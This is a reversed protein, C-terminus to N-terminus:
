GFLVAMRQQVIENTEEELMQEIRQKVVQNVKYDGFQSKVWEILKEM